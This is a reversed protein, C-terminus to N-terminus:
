HQLLIIPLRGVAEAYLLASRLARKSSFESNVMIEIVLGNEYIANFIFPTDNIQGDNDRGDFMTREERGMFIIEQFTTPDKSDIIDPEIWGTDELPPKAQVNVFSFILFSILVIITM